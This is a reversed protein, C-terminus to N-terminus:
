FFIFKKIKKNAKIDEQMLINFYKLSVFANKKILLQKIGKTPKLPLCIAELKGCMYEIQKMEQLKFYSYERSDRTTQISFFFRFENISDIGEVLM